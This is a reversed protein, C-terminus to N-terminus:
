IAARNYISSSNQGALSVTQRQSNKIVSGNPTWYSPQFVCGSRILDEIFDDNSAKRLINLSGNVDAHITKGISSRYLGRKIRKGKFTHKVGKKYGPLNDCALADSKSTYSEERERVIIGYAELKYTIQGILQAHPISVFSQNNAKGIKISQKWQKNKGIIVEGIDHMLCLQLVHNSCKHFYDRIQNYRKISLKNIKRKKGQSMLKAKQKNFNQNISKIPKGNVLVPKFSAQNSTIAMLINIGIDIALKNDSNLKVDNKLDSKFQTESYVIEIWFCSGHPVIRIEKFIECSSNSKKDLAFRSIVPEINMKKPLIIHGDKVSIPKAPLLFTKLQGQKKYKPIQPKEEYKEPNVKWDNLANWFSDFDTCLKKIVAQSGANPLSDYLSKHHFKMIQDLKPFSMSEHRFFAQRKYFLAQNFVQKSLRAIKRCASYDAHNPKILLREVRM